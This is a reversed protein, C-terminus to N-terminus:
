DVESVLAAIEDVTARFENAAAGPRCQLFVEALARYQDVQQDPGANFRQWFSGVEGDTGVARLDRVICRANHRKDALSVCLVADDADKLHVLYRAKRVKWAEEEGSDRDSCAAVIRAVEEGFNVAIEAVVTETDEILDHLLAAVAIEELRDCLRPDTAADEISLSAVALLHSLYPINTGKRMQGAHRVRAFEVAESFSNGLRTSTQEV